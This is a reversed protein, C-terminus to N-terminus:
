AMKLSTGMKVIMGGKSAIKKGKVVVPGGGLKLNGKGGKFDGTAGLLTVMTGKVSYDGAIKQYHVGGVMYTVTGDASLSYGGGM